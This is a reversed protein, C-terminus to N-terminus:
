QEEQAAIKNRAEDLQRASDKKLSELRETLEQELREREKSLQSM